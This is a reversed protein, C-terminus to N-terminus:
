HKFEYLYLFMEAASWSHTYCMRREVASSDIITMPQYDPIGKSEWSLPYNQIGIPASFNNYYHARAWQKYPYPQYEFSLVWDFIYRKLSRTNESKQVWFLDFYPGRDPPDTYTDNMNNMSLGYKLFDTQYGANLAGDTYGSIYKYEEEVVTVREIENLLKNRFASKIENPFLSILYLLQGLNDPENFGNQTDYCRDISIVWKKILDLNETKELCMAVMAADRYWPEKYVLVNPYIASNKINFLMEQHLVKLVKGYVFNDFEPLNVFARTNPLNIKPGKLGKIFVGDSDEYIEIISDKIKVIVKYQDPIISDYVVNPWQYLISDNAIKKLQGNMYLYKARNGVGFFFFKPSELDAPYCKERLSKLQESYLSGEKKLSNHCSCVLILLSFCVFIRM